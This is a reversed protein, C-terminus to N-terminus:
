HNSDKPPVYSEKRNQKKTLAIFGRSRNGQYLFLLSVIGALAAFVAVHLKWWLDFSIETM